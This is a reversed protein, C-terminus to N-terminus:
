CYVIEICPNYSFVIILILPVFRGYGHNYGYDNGGNGKGFGGNLYVYALYLASGLVMHCGLLAILTPVTINTLVRVSRGEGDELKFEDLKYASAAMVSLALLVVLTKM